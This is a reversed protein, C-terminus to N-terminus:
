NIRLLLYQALGDLFETGSDSWLSSNDHLSKRATEVYKKAKVQTYQLSGTSVIIEQCRAFDKATLQQNGLCKLLFEKDAPIARDLAHVTLLTRKGERIDDISNKGTDQKDGFTGIIDDTIQFAQGANKAFPTIGDTVECGAGALVMGVHLPNLITYTATKWEQVKAVDAETLNENLQNLPDAIQGHITVVMTRNVISMVNSRLEASADLNALIMMAGHDGLLAANTALTEALHRDKYISELQVHATPGGRRLLSNDQVDDIVLMSAHIMEIARAAQMIMAQNTGGSMKYGEIVLAGRLRKGGRNLIDTYADIADQSGQGYQEKTSSKLYEVYDTIDADIAKKHQKVVTKFYGTDTGVTKM